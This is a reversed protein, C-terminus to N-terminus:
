RYGEKITKERHCNPCLVQVNNKDNKKIYNHRYLKNRERRLPKIHDIDFFSYGNIKELGCHQCKFNVGEIIKRRLGGNNSFKKTCNKCQYSHGLPEGKKNPFDSLLSVEKCSYCRRKGEKYLHKMVWYYCVGKM